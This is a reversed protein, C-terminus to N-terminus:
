LAFVLNEKAFHLARQGERRAARVAEAVIWNKNGVLHILCEAFDIRVEFMGNAMAGFSERFQLLRQFSPREEGRSQTEAHSFSRVCLRLAASIIAITKRMLPNPM